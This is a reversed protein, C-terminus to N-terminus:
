HPEASEATMGSVHGHLGCSDVWHITLTNDKKTEKLYMLDDTILSLIDDFNNNEDKLIAL